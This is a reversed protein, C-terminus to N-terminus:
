LVPHLPCNGSTFSPEAHERSGMYIGLRDVLFNLPKTVVMTVIKWQREEFSYLFSVWIGYGQLCIVTSCSCAKVHQFRTGATREPSGFM